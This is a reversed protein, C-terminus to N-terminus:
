EVWIFRDASLEEEYDWRYAVLKDGKGVSYDLCAVNPKQLEPTGTLWYHGFFVPPANESYGPFEGPMTPQGKTASYLDPPGIVMDKLSDADDLWWKLRAHHRPNGDKDRFKIGEPLEFEAGKLLTEVCHHMDTGDQTSEILTDMDLLWCGNTHRLFRDVAAQDWCAHIIRLKPLNICLPLTWFWNIMDRLAQPDDEFEQLTAEHQEYNKQSHPRLYSGPRQIDPTHYCIANYEHNGMVAFANSATQMNRVIEVVRRNQKGRDIYDGVFIARREPHTYAGDIEQYGLKKLLAELEDAHGHIDGIIDAPKPM